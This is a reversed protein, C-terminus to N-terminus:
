SVILKVISEDSLLNYIDDYRNITINKTKFYISNIIKEIDNSFSQYDKDKYGQLSEEYVTLLCRRYLAILSKELWYQYTTSNDKELRKLQIYLPLGDEPNHWLDMFITDYHKQNNKLFEIGDGKIIHIKEKHPFLPLLHKNFIDIIKEDLEIITIDKVEEKLSAMFPYYGLGLGLVLVDGRAEKIYPEMTNIENPTISMWVENDYSLVLYKNENTFYGLPSRELYYDKEDVTIDNLSFPQYPKYSLYNLEYKGEKFPSPNVNNFYPNSSFYDPKLPFIAPKVWKELIKLDETKDKPIEWYKLLRHYFSDATNSGIFFNTEEFTQFLLDAISINIEKTDLLKYTKELEVQSLKIKM